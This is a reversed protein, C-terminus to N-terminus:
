RAVYRYFRCLQAHTGTIKLRTRHHSHTFTMHARKAALQVNEFFAENACTFRRTVPSDNHIIKSM